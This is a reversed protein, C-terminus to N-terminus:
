GRTASVLEEVVANASTARGEVRVVDFEEALASRAQAETREHLTREVSELSAGCAELLADAAGLLLAARRERGEAVALAALGEFAIAVYERDGLEHSLALSELLPVGASEHEGALLHCLGVHYSRTRSTTAGASSAPSSWRTSSCRRRRRTSRASCTFTASTNLAHMLARGDGAERPTM